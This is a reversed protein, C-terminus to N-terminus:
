NGGRTLRILRALHIFSKGALYSIDIIYRVWYNFINEQWREPHVLICINDFEGKKIIEILQDTNKPNVNRTKHVVDKAKRWTDNRWTRGSDSFYTFKEYDLSLYPEGILGFYSFEHRKWIEKNDYKTLPNGHMCATKVKYHQRLVALESRFLASAADLDGRCKDVTEYHYGIEHKYEAIKDIIAPIFTRKKIRIYYTAKLGFHREILAMDLACKSNEDIDHRLIIFHKDDTPNRSIYEELTVNSYGSDAVTKCLNEYKDRTFDLNNFLKITKRM